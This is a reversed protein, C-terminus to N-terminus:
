EAEAAHQCGQERPLASTPPLSPPPALSALHAAEASAAEACGWVVSRRPSADDGASRGVSQKGDTKGNGLRIM